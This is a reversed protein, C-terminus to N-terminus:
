LNIFTDFYEDREEQSDFWKHELIGNDITLRIAHKGSFDGVGEIKEILQIRNINILKDKFLIFTKM